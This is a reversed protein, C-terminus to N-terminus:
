GGSVAPLIIIEDGPVLATDLGDRDRMHDQNVFVNVHRRVTGTDDCIGRYVSPHERELEDLAARVSQASSMIEAAGNCYGRLERPIHIKIRMSRSMPLGSATM